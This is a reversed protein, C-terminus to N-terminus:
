RWCVKSLWTRGRACSCWVILLYSFPFNFDGKKASSDFAMRRGLCMWWTYSVGAIFDIRMRKMRACIKIFSRLIPFNNLLKIRVRSFVCFHWASTWYISTERVTHHSIDATIHTPLNKKTRRRTRRRMWISPALYQQIGIWIQIQHFRRFFTRFYKSTNPDREVSQRVFKTWADTWIVRLDRAAAEDLRLPRVAIPIFHFPFFFLFINRTRTRERSVSCRYSNEM